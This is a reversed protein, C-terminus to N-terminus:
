DEDELQIKRALVSNDPQKIGEVEVRNGLKLVESSPLVEHRHGFYKTSGDTTVARGAIVLPNLSSITGKFEMEHDDDGDDDGDHDDDDELKIKRALVSGDSQATGEVEVLDGPQFASLPIPMGKEDLLRTLDNVHVMRGDVVLSSAGVSDVKGEFEVEGEDDDDVLTASSGSVRVTLTLTKGNEVGELGLRADIGSGQFRLEVRGPPVGQLAFRGAADTVTQLATGTVSVRLGSAASAGVPGAAANGSQVTGAITAGGRPPTASAPVEPGTASSSGGCAVTALTVGAALLLLFSRSQKTMPLAELM